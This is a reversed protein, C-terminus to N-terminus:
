GSMRQGSIDIVFAKNMLDNISTPEQAIRATSEEEFLSMQKKAEIKKYAEHRDQRYQELLDFFVVPSSLNKIVGYKGAKARQLFLIVDELSLYDEHASIMLDCATVSIKTETLKKAKTLVLSNFFERIIMVLLRYMTKKGFKEMLGPIRDTLPISLLADWKVTEGAQYQKVVLNAIMGYELKDIYLRSSKRKPAATDKAKTVSNNRFKMEKVMM